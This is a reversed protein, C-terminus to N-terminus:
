GPLAPTPLALRTAELRAVEGEVPTLFLGEGAGYALLRGYGLLFGEPDLLAYLREPRPSGELPLVRPRAEQFHALLRRLRNERRERPTKRRAGPLPPLLRAKLDKRWALARFLGEAGLVLIEVPALADVQLLRYAPDLLGDTDAVAPSGPPILRALRLAAVLAKAEVGMPSLAGLLTRRVLALRGKQYHFLSFAGPLNGQGPDLDLLFAEGARELLRQALTSKGADTPGLLLLM